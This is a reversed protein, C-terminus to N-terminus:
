RCGLGLIYHIMFNNTDRLVFVHVVCTLYNFQSNKNQKSTYLTYNNITQGSWKQQEKKRKRRTPNTKKKPQNKNPKIIHNIIM